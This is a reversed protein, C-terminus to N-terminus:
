VFIIENVFFSSPILCSYISNIILQLGRLVNSNRPNHKVSGYKEKVGQPQNFFTEMVAVEGLPDFHPINVIYFFSYDQMARLIEERAGGNMIKTYDLKPAYLLPNESTDKFVM